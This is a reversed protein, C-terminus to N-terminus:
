AICFADEEEAGGAAALARLALDDAGDGAEIVAGRPSM